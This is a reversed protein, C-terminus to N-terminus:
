QDSEEVRAESTPPAELITRMLQARSRVGLKRYLRRSLTAVTPLSIGLM